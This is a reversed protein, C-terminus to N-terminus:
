KKYNLDPGYYVADVTFSINLTIVQNTTPDIASFDGTTFAINGNLFFLNRMVSDPSSANLKDFDYATVFQNSAPDLTFTYTPTVGTLVVDYTNSTGARLVLNQSFDTTAGCAYRVYMDFNENADINYGFNTLDIKMQEIAEALTPTTGDPRLALYPTIFYDVIESVKVSRVTYLEFTNVKKEAVDVVLKSVNSSLIVGDNRDVVNYNRLSVSTSTSGSGITFTGSQVIEGTVYSSVGRKKINTSRGDDSKNQDLSRNTSTSVVKVTPEVIAGDPDTPKLVEPKCCVFSTFSNWCAM